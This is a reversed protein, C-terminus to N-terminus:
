GIQVWVAAGATNVVNVYVANTSTDIFLIGPYYGSRVDDNAGPVRPQYGVSPLITWSNNGDQIIQGKLFLSNILASLKQTERRLLDVTDLPKASPELFPYKRRGGLVPGPPPVFQGSEWAARLRRTRTPGFIAETPDPPAPPLVPWRIMTFAPTAPPPAQVSLWGAQRQRPVPVIEEVTVIPGDRM